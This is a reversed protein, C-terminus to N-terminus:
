AAVVDRLFDFRRARLVVEVEHEPLDRVLVDLEELVFSFPVQEDHGGATVKLGATAASDIFLTRLDAAIMGVVPAVEVFRQLLVLFQLARVILRQSRVAALPETGPAPSLLFPRLITAGSQVSIATIALLRGGDSERPKREQSGAKEWSVRPIMGLLR